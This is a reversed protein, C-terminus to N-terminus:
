IDLFNNTLQKLAFKKNNTNFNFLKFQSEFKKFTKCGNLDKNNRNNRFSTRTLNYSNDYVSKEAEKNIDLLFSKPYFNNKTMFKSKNKKNFLKDDWNIKGNKIVSNLLYKKNKKANTNRMSTRATRNKINIKSIKAASNFRTNRETKYKSNNINNGFQSKLNFISSNNISTRYTKILKPCSKSEHNNKNISNIAIKECSKIDCKKKFWDNSLNNKKQPFIWNKNFESFMSLISNNYNDNYNSFMSQIKNNYEDYFYQKFEGKRKLNNYKSNFQKKQVSLIQYIKQSLEEQNEFIEREKEELNYLKKTKLNKQNIFDEDFYECSYNSESILLNNIKSNESGKSM